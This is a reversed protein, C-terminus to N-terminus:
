IEKVSNGIKARIEATDEDPLKADNWLSILDLLVERPNEAFSADIQATQDPLAAAERYNEALLIM